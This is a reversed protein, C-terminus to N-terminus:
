WPRPFTNRGEVIARGMERPWGMIKELFDNVDRVFAFLGEFPLLFIWWTACFYALPWVIIVLVLTWIISYVCKNQVVDNNSM